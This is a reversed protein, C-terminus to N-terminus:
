APVGPGLAALSRAHGQEGGDDGWDADDEGFLAALADLDPSDTTGVTIGRAIEDVSTATAPPVSELEFWVCKGTGVPAAGWSDALSELLMIGRGTTADPGYRKRMPLDPSGDAVEVRIRRGEVIVTVTTGSRAHLLANSVLESTLLVAIDTDAASSRAVEEEVFTRAQRVATRDSGFTRSAM